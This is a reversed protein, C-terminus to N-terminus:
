HIPGTKLGRLIDEFKDRAALRERLVRFTESVDQRYSSSPQMWHDFEEKWNPLGQAIAAYVDREAYVTEFVRLVDNLIEDSVAM